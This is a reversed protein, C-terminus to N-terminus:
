KAALLEAEAQRGAFEAEAERRATRTAEAKERDILVKRAQEALARWTKESRLARERVNDLAAGKAEAASENARADYFEFTQSM